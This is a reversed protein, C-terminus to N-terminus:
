SQLVEKAGPYMLILGGLLTVYVGSAATGTLYYLGMFAILGGLLLSAIRVRRTWPRLAVISGALLGALLTLSGDGDIGHVRQGLVTAWPLFAGLITLAAGALAIKQRQGFYVAVTEMVQVREDIVGAHSGAATDNTTADEPQVTRTTDQAETPKASGGDGVATLEAGCDGCFSQTDDAISGCATCRTM